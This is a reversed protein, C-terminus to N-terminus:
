PRAAAQRHRRLAERAAAAGRRSTDAERAPRSDLIEAPPRVDARCRYAAFRAERLADLRSPQSRAAPGALPERLRPDATRMAEAYPAPDVPRNGM